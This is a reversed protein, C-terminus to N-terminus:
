IFKIRDSWIGSSNTLVRDILSATNETIRAPVSILQKLSYSYGSDLYEKALSPLSKLKSKHGKKEFINEGNHLININFDGLLYSKQKELINLRTFAEKRNKVFDNKDPPRYLIGALMLKTKSLFM